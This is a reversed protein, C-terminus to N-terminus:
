KRIIKYNNGTIKIVQSVKRYPLLGADIILDPKIDTKKIQQKFLTNLNYVNRFGSINASTAVLPVKVKELLSLSFLNKPIQIGINKFKPNLYKPVNKSKKVVFSHMRGPKSLFREIVPSWSGFKKFQGIDKVIINIPKNYHRKKFAYVKKVAEKNTTDAAIGYCTDTPHIVIGGQKLIIVAENIAENLNDLSEIKIIEM